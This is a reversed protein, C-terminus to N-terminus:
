NEIARIAEDARRKWNGGDSEIYAIRGPPDFHSGRKHICTVRYRAM